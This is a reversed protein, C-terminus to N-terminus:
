KVVVIAYKGEKYVTADPFAAALEDALKTRTLYVIGHKESAKAEDPSVEPVKHGLYTEIGETRVLKWTYIEHLGGKEQVLELSKKCVHRYGIQKNLGPMDFCGTFIGLVLGAALVRIAPQMDKRRLLPCCSVVGAVTANIAATPGGSQAVLLNRM